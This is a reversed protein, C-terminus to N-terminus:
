LEELFNNKINYELFYSQYEKNLINQPWKIHLLLICYAKKSFQNWDYTLNVTQGM